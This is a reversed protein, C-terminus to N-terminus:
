SIEDTQVHVKGHNPANWANVIGRAWQLGHIQGKLLITIQTNPERSMRQACGREEKYIAEAIEQQVKIPIKM